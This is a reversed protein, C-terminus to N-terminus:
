HQAKVALKSIEEHRSSLKREPLIATALGPRRRHPDFLKIFRRSQCPM